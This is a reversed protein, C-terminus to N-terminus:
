PTGRGLNAPGFSHPLLEELTFTKRVGEPGAVHIRTSADAFERIRQRCGGCPTCLDKGDGIVLIDAIRREGALAMAAIAAAEACAGQPYAANEVNCGSYVAGGATRIAAGVKFRSYPAYASAQAAKAASFLAALDAEASKSM